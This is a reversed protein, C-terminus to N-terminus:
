PASCRRRAAAQASVPLSIWRRAEDRREQSVKDKEAEEETRTPALVANPVLEDNDPGLAM